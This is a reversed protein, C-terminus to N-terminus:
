RNQQATRDKPKLVSQPMYHLEPADIGQLRVTVRGKADLVQKTTKGRVKAGDFVHTVAFPAGPQPRFRFGNGTLSVLIKTTDADSTGHPWFQGLDITGIAQLLGTAM